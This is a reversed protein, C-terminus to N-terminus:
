NNKNQFEFLKMKILKSSIQIVNKENVIFSCRQEIKKEEMGERLFLTIYLM